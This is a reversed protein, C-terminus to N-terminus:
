VSYLGADTVTVVEGPLQAVFVCESTNIVEVDWPPSIKLCSLKGAEGTKEVLGSGGGAAVGRWVYPWVSRTDFHYRNQIQHLRARAKLIPARKM